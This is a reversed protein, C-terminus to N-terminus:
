GLGAITPEVAAAPSPPSGAAPDPQTLFWPDGCSRHTLGGLWASLTVRDPVPAAGYGRGGGDPTGLRRRSPGSGNGFLLRRRLLVIGFPRRCLAVRFGLLHDGLDEVIEEGRHAHDGLSVHAVLKFIARQYKLYIAGVGAQQDAASTLSERGDLEQDAHNGVALKVALAVHDDIHLAVPLAPGIHQALQALPRCAPHRIGAASRRQFGHRGGLAPDDVHREGIVRPDARLALSFAIAAPHNDQGSRSSGASFPSGRWGDLAFGPWILASGNPLSAKLVPSAARAPPAAIAASTTPPATPSIAAAPAAALALRPRRLGSGARGALRRAAGTRGIHGGRLARLVLWVPIGAATRPWLLLLVRAPALGRLIRGAPLAAALLWAYRASPPICSSRLLGLKAAKRDAREGTRRRSM